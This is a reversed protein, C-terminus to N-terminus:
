KKKTNRIVRKMSIDTLIEYDTRFGSAEHLTDTLNTRTYSPMYELKEIPRYMTM